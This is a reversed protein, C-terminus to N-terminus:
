HSHYLTCVSRDQVTLYSQKTSKGVHPANGHASDVIRGVVALDQSIEYIVVVHSSTLRIKMGPPMHAFSGETRDLIQVEENGEELEASDEGKGM